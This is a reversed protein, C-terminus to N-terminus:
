NKLRTGPMYTQVLSFTQIDFDEFRQNLIKKWEYLFNKFIRSGLSHFPPIISCKRESQVVRWFSLQIVNKCCREFAAVKNQRLAIEFLNITFFCLSQQRYLNGKGLFRDFSFLNPRSIPLSFSYFGGLSFWRTFGDLLFWCIFLV